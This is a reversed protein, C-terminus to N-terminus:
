FNNFANFKKEFTLITEDQERTKITNVYWILINFVEINIIIEWYLGFYSMASINRFYFDNGKKKGAISAHYAQDL